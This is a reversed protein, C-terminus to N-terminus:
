AVGVTTFKGRGLYFLLCVISLYSATNIPLPHPRVSRFAPQAITIDSVPAINLISDCVDLKFSSLSHGGSPQFIRYQQLEDAEDVGACVFVSSSGAAGACVFM